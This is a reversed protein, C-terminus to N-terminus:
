WRTTPGHGGHLEAGQRDAECRVQTLYLVALSWMLLVREPSPSDGTALVRAVSLVCAAIIGLRAFGRLNARLTGPKGSMLNTMLCAVATISAGAVFLFTM